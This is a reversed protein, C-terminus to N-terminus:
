EGAKEMLFTRPFRHLGKDGAYGDGSRQQQQYQGDVAQDGHHNGLHHAADAGNHLGEGGVQLGGFVPHNLEEVVVGFHGPRYLLGNIGGDAPQLVPNLGIQQGIEVVNNVAKGGTHHPHYVNQFVQDDPQNHRYVKQGAAPAKGGLGFLNYVAQERYFEGVGKDGM